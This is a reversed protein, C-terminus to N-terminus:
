SVVPGSDDRSEDREILDRLAPQPLVEHINIFTEPILPFEKAVGKLLALPHPIVFGDRSAPSDKANLDAIKRWRGTFSDPAWTDIDSSRASGLLHRWLRLRFDRVRKNHFWGINLETDMELSRGNINASGITAFLDDVICIKSHLYLQPSGHANTFNNKEAKARVVLSFVGFNDRFADILREIEKIQVAAPHLDRADASKPDSLEEPAIPIVLIVQLRPVKRHRAILLKTFEPSRFYQNELYVFSQAADIARSYADRIDARKVEPLPRGPQDVSVTRLAQVVDTGPTKEARRGPDSAVTLKPFRLIGKDPKVAELEGVRKSFALTEVNWRERFGREIDTVVMGKILSHIDHWNSRSREHRMTDLALPTVDMGGCFAIKGDVVCFKQHHSAIFARPEPSSGLSFRKKALDV